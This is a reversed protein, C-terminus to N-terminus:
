RSAVSSCFLMPSQCGSPLAKLFILFCEDRYHGQRQASATHHHSFYSIRKCEEPQMGWVKLLQTQNDSDPQNYDM